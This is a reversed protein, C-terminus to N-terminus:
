EGYLWHHHDPINEKNTDEQNSGAPLAMEVGAGM